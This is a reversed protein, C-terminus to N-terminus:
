NIAIERRYRYYLATTWLVPEPALSQPDLDRHWIKVLLTVELLDSLM